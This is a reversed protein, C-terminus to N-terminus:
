GVCAPSEEISSRAATLRAVSELIAERDYKAQCDQFDRARASNETAPDILALM